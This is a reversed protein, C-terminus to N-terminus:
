WGLNQGSVPRLETPEIMRIRYRSFFRTFVEKNLYSTCDLSVSGREVETGETSHHYRGSSSVGVETTGGKGRNEVERSMLVM